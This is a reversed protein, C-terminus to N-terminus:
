LPRSLKQGFLGCGRSTCVWADQLRLTVKFGRLGYFREHLLRSFTRKKRCDAVNVYKKNQKKKTTQTRARDRPKRNRPKEAQNQSRPKRPKKANRNRPKKAVRSRIAKKDQIAQQSRPKRSKKAKRGRPKNAERSRVAEHITKVIM